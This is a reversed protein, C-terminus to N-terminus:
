RDLFRLRGVNGVVVGAGVYSRGSLGRLAKQRLTM